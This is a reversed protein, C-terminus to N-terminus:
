TRRVWVRVLLITMIVHFAAAVWLVRGALEGGFELYLFFLAALANYALLARLAIRLHLVEATPWCAIALALLGFGAVRTIAAAAPSVDAGLLLRVVVSPVAICAIGM